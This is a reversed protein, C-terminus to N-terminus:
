ATLQSLNFLYINNNFGDTGMAEASTRSASWTKIEDTEYLFSVAHTIGRAVQATARKGMMTTGINQNKYDARVYIAAATDVNAPDIGKAIIADLMPNTWQVGEEGLWDRTCTPFQSLDGYGFTGVLLNSAADDRALVISLDLNDRYNKLIKLEDAASYGAESVSSTAVVICEDLLADTNILSQMKGIEYIISM